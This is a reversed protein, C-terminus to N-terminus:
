QPPPATADGGNTQADIDDRQKQAAELVEPSVAKARDIPAQIADRLETHTEVPHTAQPEPPQEKDPPAPRSCAASLVLLSLAACRM